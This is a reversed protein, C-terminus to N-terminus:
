RGVEMQLPLIERRSGNRAPSRPAQRPALLVTPSKGASSDYAATADLLVELTTIADAVSGTGFKVSLRRKALSSDALHIKVGYYREVGAVVEAAPAGHFALEGKTWDSYASANDVTGSTILSDTVRGIMGALLTRSGSAGANVDVKGQTVVVQVTHTRADNTVDFTTGLVRTNVTGTEVVFPSGGAQRIVFYARGTLAVRRHTAGFGSELSLAAKPALTVRSGDPLTLVRLSREAATYQRTTSDSQSRGVDGVGRVVTFGLAAVAVSGACLRTMTSWRRYWPGTAHIARAVLRDSSYSSERGGSTRGAASIREGIAARVAIEDIDRAIASRWADQWLRLQARRGPASDAWSDLAQREAHTAEGAFVRDLLTDLGNPAAFDPSAHTDM